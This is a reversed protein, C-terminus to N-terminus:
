RPRGTSRGTGSTPFTCSRDARPRRVARARPGRGPRDPQGGVRRRDPHGRTTDPMGLWQRFWDLVTSEVQAPGAAELWVGAFFNAAATLWDGLIAPFCPAGPVFALFRPHNTRFAFPEVHEASTAGARRRVAPGRGAAPRASCPACRDAADRDPRDAPRAANRSDAFRGTGSRRRRRGATTPRGPAAAARRGRAAADALRGDIPMSRRSTTPSARTRSTGSATTAPRSKPSASPASSRGATSSSSWGRRARRGPGGRHEAAVRDPDQVPRCPHKNERQIVPKYHDHLGRPSSGPVRHLAPLGDLVPGPDGQPHVREQEQAQRPVRRPRGGGQLRRDQDKAVEPGRLRYRPTLIPSPLPITRGVALDHLPPCHRAARPFSSTHAGFLDAQAEVRM